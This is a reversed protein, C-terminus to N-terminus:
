PPKLYLKFLRFHVLGGFILSPLMVIFLIPLMLVIVIIACIKGIHKRAGLAAGIVAGYPGGAAAGKAAGSLAKGTQLLGKAMHAASSATSIAEDFSRKEKEM